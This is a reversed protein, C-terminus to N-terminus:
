PYAVECLQCYLVDALSRKLIEGCDECCPEGDENYIPMSM